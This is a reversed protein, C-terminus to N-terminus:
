SSFLHMDEKKGNGFVSSGQMNHNEELVMEICRFTPYVSEHVYAHNRM